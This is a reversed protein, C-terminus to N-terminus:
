SDQGRARDLYSQLIVAAAMSDDPARRKKKRAGSELRYERATVTSFREDYLDLPIALITALLTAIQRVKETQPGLHGDLSLPLGVVIRGVDQERALVAIAQIDAPTSKRTIFALPRAILGTPDSVAVGIRRDGMDLALIRM